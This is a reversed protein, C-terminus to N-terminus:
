TLKNLVLEQVKEPTIDLISILKESGEMGAVVDFRKENIKLIKALFKILERNIDRTKGTINIVLTGDELVNRIGTKGQDDSIRVALASGKEGDHFNFKRGIM